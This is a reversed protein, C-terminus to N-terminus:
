AEAAVFEILGAGVAAHLVGTGHGHELHLPVFLALEKEHLSGEGGSLPLPHPRMGGRERPSAGCYQPAPTLTDEDEGPGGRGPCKGAVGGECNTRLQVVHAHHGEVGVGMLRHLYHERLSPQISIEVLLVLGRILGSKRVVLLVALVDRPLDGTFEFAGIEFADAVFLEEGIRLRFIAIGELHDGAIEHGCLIAGTHYVGCGAEARIVLAHRLLM